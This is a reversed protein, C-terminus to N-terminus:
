AVATRELEHPCVGYYGVAANCNHCLLRYLPDVVGAKTLQRYLTTTSVLKRHQNGGGDVHDLALFQWRAEGCCACSRGYLDIVAQRTTRHKERHGAALEDAHAERYRRVAEDAQKKYEPDNQYRTRRAANNKEEYRRSRVLAEVPHAAAWRDTKAQDAANRCLQCM